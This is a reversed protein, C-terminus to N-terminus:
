DGSLELVGGLAWAEGVTGSRETAWIGSGSCIHRVGESDVADWIAGGGM